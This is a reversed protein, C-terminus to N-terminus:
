PLSYVKEEKLIETAYKLVALIDEKKLQPYNELIEEFTWGNALLELIFEVSMRTGKIVPKGVLISSDVVIREKWDEAM